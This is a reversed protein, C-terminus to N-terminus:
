YITGKENDLTKLKDILRQNEEATGVTIRICNRLVANRNRVIIKDEVLANYITDADETEVLFFNTQSPYIKKIIAVKQLASFLRDKELLIQQKNSLYLDRNKIADIAARQNLGSVNYPPKVKNLLEIIASNAYALGVRAAALGWAKSMTQSVILNPYIEILAMFSQIDSFDIYAEDILIIGSFSKLISEIADADFCNGTPNNPSCILILKLKPDSLYPEVKQFDIDFNSDLEVRILEVANIGAVVEYMGYTPAFTLAKDVGPNCFIRFLLDITEDSGNGVFINKPDIANYSGIAHKLERQYPDPYRNLNGYPNENADLFTGESDNFEDRASSYPKLEQINPRTLKNLDVM